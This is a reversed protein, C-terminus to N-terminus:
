RRGVRDVSRPDRDVIKNSISRRRAAAKDSLGSTEVNPFKKKLAAGCGKERFMQCKTDASCAQAFALESVAPEEGDSQAERVKILGSFRELEVLQLVLLRM